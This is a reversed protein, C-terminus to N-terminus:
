RSAALAGASAKTTADAAVNVSRVLWDEFHVEGLRADNGPVLTREDV